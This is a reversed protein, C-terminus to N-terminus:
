HRPISEEPRLRVIPRFNVGRPKCYSVSYYCAFTAAVGHVLRGFPYLVDAGPAADLLQAHLGASLHEHEADLAIALEHVLQALASREDARAAVLRHVHNKGQEPVPVVEPPQGREHGPQPGVADQPSEPGLPRLVQLLGLHHAGAQIGPEDVHLDDAEGPDQRSLLEDDGHRPSGEMTGARDPSRGLLGARARLTYRGETAILSILSRRSLSSTSATLSMTRLSSDCRSRSTYRMPSMSFSTARATISFSRSNALLLLFGM